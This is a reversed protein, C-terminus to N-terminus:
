VGLLNQDFAFLVNNIEFIDYEEKEIFYEIIIDFKSSHSLAYGAKGLLDKTEDLNLHLAIAFAVATNKTPQYDWNNKIKSFLKRDVNAEKYVKSPKMNKEEILRLLSESFSEELQDMLQDLKRSKEEVTSEIAIDEDLLNRSIECVRLKQTVLSGFEYEEEILQDVYNEEIYSEVDLFVKESLSFIEKDFVVLYVLLDNNLVFNSIERVAVHFALDKPFGMNGASLIPFAISKCKNEVALKLSEKYCNELLKIQKKDGGNYYPSVAHFVYKAKLNFAPTAKVQGFDMTGIERRAISLQNGAANYIRSDVGTGVTAYPNATNVIADVKMSAIDNRVIKLPM